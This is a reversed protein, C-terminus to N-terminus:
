KAALLGHVVDDHPRVQTTRDGLAAINALLQQAIAHDLNRACAVVQGEFVSTVVQLQTLLVSLVPCHEIPGLVTASAAQTTESLLASSGVVYVELVLIPVLQM